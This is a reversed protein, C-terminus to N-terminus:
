KRYPLLPLSPDHSLHVTSPTSIIIGVASALAYLGTPPVLRVLHSSDVVSDLRTIGKLRSVFRLTPILM